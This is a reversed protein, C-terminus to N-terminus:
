RRARVLMFCEALGLNSVSGWHLARARLAEPSRPHPAPRVEASYCLFARIKQELTESVDVFVNPHFSPLLEPASWETASPTEFMLVESVSPAAYPRTAVLVAEAIVRHDRNIDGSFHTYVRDPKLEEILKEVHSAVETLSLTDLKQDPLNGLRVDMGILEAARKSQARVEAHREPAYRMSVGECLVAATVQDGAKAHRALTAGVGLLEDDPHAAVCLVKM